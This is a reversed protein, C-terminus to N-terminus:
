NLIKNLRTLLEFHSTMKRLETENSRLELIRFRLIVQLIMKDVSLKLKMYSRVTCKRYLLEM